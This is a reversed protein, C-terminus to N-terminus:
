GFRYLNSGDKWNWLPAISVLDALRQAHRVHSEIGYLHSQFRHASPCPRPPWIKWNWLPAISVDHEQHHARGNRSEIGYLHSQFWRVRESSLLVHTSEIGYLHSQFEVPLIFASMRAVKLEMFTRNFGQPHPTTPQSHCKWNWLPAISVRVLGNVSVVMCSEIGYLHSQFLCVGFLRSRVAGKLEMFTRNFSNPLLRANVEGEVKLEMFTRNFCNACVIFVSVFTKWNWLPAISVHCVVARSLRHVPKWNWLPAISVRAFVERRGDKRREIGYLHSQFSCYFVWSLVSADKLEM